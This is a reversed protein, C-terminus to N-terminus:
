MILLMKLQLAIRMLTRMPGGNEARAGAFVLTDFHKGAIDQINKSNYKAEFVHQACLNGGVFGTHGVIADTM